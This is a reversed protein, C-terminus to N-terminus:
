IEGFKQQGFTVIHMADLQPAVILTLNGTLRSSVGRHTHSPPLAYGSRLRVGVATRM